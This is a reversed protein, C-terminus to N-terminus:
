EQNGLTCSTTGRSLENRHSSRATGSLVGIRGTATPADINMMCFIVVIGVASGRCCDVLWIISHIIGNINPKKVVVNGLPSATYQTIDLTTPTTICPKM